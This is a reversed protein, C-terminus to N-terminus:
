KDAPQLAARAPATPRKSDDILNSIGQNFNKDWTTKLFVGKVAEAVTWLTFHTKADVITLLLELAFTDIKDTSTMATNFQLEFV